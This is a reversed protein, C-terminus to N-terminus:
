KNARDISKLLIRKNHQLTRIVERYADIESRNVPSTKSERILREFYEISDDLSIFLQENVVVTKITGM